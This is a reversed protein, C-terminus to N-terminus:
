WVSSVSPLIIHSSCLFNDYAYFILSLQVSFHTVNYLTMTIIQSKSKAVILVWCQCQIQLKLWLIGTQVIYWIAHQTHMSLLKLWTQSQSGMSQLGGSEETWPIRWALISSLTTIERELPDESGPVLGVDRVDGANAPPNKVVLAVQSAWIWM